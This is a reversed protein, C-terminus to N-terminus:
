RSPRLLLLSLPQRLRSCNTLGLELRPRFGPGRWACRDRGPGIAAAYRARLVIAVEDVALTLELAENSPLLPPSHLVVVRQPADRDAPDDVAGRAPRGPTGYRHGIPEQRAPRRAALLEVRSFKRCSRSRSLWLRVSGWWRAIDAAWRSQLATAEM